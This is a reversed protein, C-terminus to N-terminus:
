VGFSRKAAREMKAVLDAGTMGSEVSIRPIAYRSTEKQIVGNEVTFLLSFGMMRLEEQTLATYKGNPFALARCSEQRLKEKIAEEGSWVSALFAEETEVTAPQHNTTHNYIKVYKSDVMKQAQRWTFKQLGTQNTISDTVAFISAPVKNEQFVPYALDFNSVYGDDMTICLYKKGLGLAKPDDGKGPKAKEKEAKKLLVDLEELSIIEYGQEKFYKVHEELEAQMTVVGNGTEMDRIAFHHYMLVPIYDTPSIVEEEVIEAVELAVTEDQNMEQAFAVQSFCM